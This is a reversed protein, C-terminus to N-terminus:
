QLKPSPCQLDIFYINSVLFFLLFINPSDKPIHLIYFFIRTVKLFCRNQPADGM